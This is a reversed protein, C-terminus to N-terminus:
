LMKYDLRLLLLLKTYILGTGFFILVLLLFTQFSTNIAPIFLQKNLLFLIFGIVAGAMLIKVFFSFDPLKKVQTRTLLLFLLVSVKLTKSIAFALPIAIYGISGIFFYIIMIHVFVAILGVFIPTKIDGNAFYFVVLVAEASYFPLGICYWKLPLATLVVSAADFAGRQYIVTTIPVAFTFIFIAVPFFIIGIWGISKTFLSSLKDLQKSVAYSSFYPFAVISLVYPFILVPFEVIKKSYSLASVAGTPMYSTFMNDILVTFQSVSAGLVLPWSLQLIEKWHYRTLTLKKFSVRKLMILYHYLLKCAAALTFGLMAAYINLRTFFVILLVLILMKFILDGAAPLAFIKVGNLAIKPLVSAALFFIAPFGLRTLNIALQKKEATFGPAFMNVFLDPFLAGLLCFALLLACLWRMTSNFFRWAGADGHAEKIRLFTNLYVPEFIERVLTFVALIFSVIINYVDVKISTGFYYALIVKEFYGLFKTIVMIFSILATSRLVPKKEFWRAIINFV